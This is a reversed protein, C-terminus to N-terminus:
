LHYSVITILRLIIKGLVCKHLDYHFHLMFLFSDDLIANLLETAAERDDSSSNKKIKIEELIAPLAQNALISCCSDDSSYFL